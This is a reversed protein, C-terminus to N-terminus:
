MIMHVPVLELKTQYMAKTIFCILELWKRQQSVSTLGECLDSFRLICVATSIGPTHVSEQIKSM